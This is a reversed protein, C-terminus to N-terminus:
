VDLFNYQIPWYSTYNAVHVEFSVELRCFETVPLKECFSEINVLTIQVSAGAVFTQRARFETHSDHLKVRAERQWFQPGVDPTRLDEFRSLVAFQGHKTV